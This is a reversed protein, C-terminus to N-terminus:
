LDLLELFQDESIIDIIYGKTFMAEAKVLKGSKIGNDLDVFESKGVVLYRTKSTINDKPIAGRKAALTAAEIRTGFRLEGTFCIQRNFLPSESCIDNDSTVSLRNVSQNKYSRFSRARSISCPSYDLTNIVGTKSRFLM